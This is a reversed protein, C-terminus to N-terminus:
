LGFFMEREMSENPNYFMFDDVSLLLIKFWENAFFSHMKYISGYNNSNQVQKVHRHM